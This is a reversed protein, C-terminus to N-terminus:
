CYREAFERERAGPLRHPDADEAYPCGDRAIRTRLGHDHLADAAAMAAVWILVPLAIAFPLKSAHWIVFCVRRADSSFTSWADEAAAFFEPWAGHLYVLRIPM